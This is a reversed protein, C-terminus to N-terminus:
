LHGQMKICVTNTNQGWDTRKQLNQTTKYQKPLSSINRHTQEAYLHTTYQSGNYCLLSSLHNYAVRVKATWDRGIQRHMHLRCASRSTSRSYTRLNSISITSCRFLCAFVSMCVYAEVGCPNCPDRGGLIQGAPTTRHQRGGSYISL